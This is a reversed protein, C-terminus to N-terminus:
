GNNQLWEDQLLGYHLVDHYMRRIKVEQWGKGEYKMGCKEM